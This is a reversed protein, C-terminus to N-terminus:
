RDTWALDSKVWEVEYSYTIDMASAGSEPRLALYQSPDNPVGSSGNCTPLNTGPELKSGDSKHIVSVPHVDFGTIRTGVFSAPDENYTIVFKLHNFLYLEGDQLAKFSAPAKFGLPYGRVAYNYEKSRMLVPLQDLQLQVRYQRAVLKRLQKIARANLTIRCLTRCGHPQLVRLSFPSVHMDHGQLRSGLNKRQRHKRRAESEDPKPCVPLDYFEFPIPTKRSDVLDAYIYIPEGANYEQPAVGPFLIDTLSAEKKRILGKRKKQRLKYARLAAAEATNSVEDIGQKRMEIYKAREATKIEKRDKRNLRQGMAIKEKTQQSLNTNALPKRPIVKPKMQMQMQQPQMANAMSAVALLLLNSLKM